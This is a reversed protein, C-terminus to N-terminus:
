PNSKKSLIKNAYELQQEPDINCYIKGSLYTIHRAGDESYSTMMVKNLTVQYNKNEIKHWVIEPHDAPIEYTFTTIPRQHYQDPVFLVKVGATLSFTPGFRRGDRVVPWPPADIGFTKPENDIAGCAVKDFQVSGNIVGQFHLITVPAKEAWACSSAFVFALFVVIKNIPKKLTGMNMVSNEKSM